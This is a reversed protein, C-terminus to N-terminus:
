AEATKPMKARVPATERVGEPMVQCRGDLVAGALVSLVKASIDGHVRATSLLELKESVSVNGHIEGAVVANAATVDAEISATETVALDGSAKVTGKVIGEIRVNGPSVFEGEVKVGNAIVTESSGGEEKKFM